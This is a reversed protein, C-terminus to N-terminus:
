HSALLKNTDKSKDFLSKFREVTKAGVLREEDV